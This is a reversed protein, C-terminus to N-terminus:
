FGARFAPGAFHVLAWGLAGLVILVIAYFLLRLLPFFDASRARFPGRHSSEHIVLRHRCRPCHEHRGIEKDPVQFHYVCTPCQVDIM